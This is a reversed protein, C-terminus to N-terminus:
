LIEPKTLRRANLFSGSRSGLDEVLYRAGDRFVRLHERSITKEDLLVMCTKLRGLVVERDVAYERREGGSEIVLRAM